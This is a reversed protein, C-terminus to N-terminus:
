TVSGAGCGNRRQWDLAYAAYRALASKIVSRSRFKSWVAMARAPLSAFYRDPERKNTGSLERLVPHILEDVESSGTLPDEGHPVDPPM